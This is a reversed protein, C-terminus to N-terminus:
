GGEELVARAAALAAVCQSLGARRIPDDRKFDAVVPTLAEICQRLADLLSREYESAERKSLCDDCECWPLSTLKSM